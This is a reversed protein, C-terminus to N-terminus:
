SLFGESKLHNETIVDKCANFVFRISSTDTACTVHHYIEDHVANRALFKGLFYEIGAEYNNPKGSYDSFEPIDALNIKKIKQAYLDSKNLFIIIAAKEFAADNSTRDFLDIADIMRNTCQDEWLVQDFESLAAMFIVGHVNDFCHIWKRRENKQGGVDFFQFIKNDIIFREEKIGTTRIRCNMIDNTSPKYDVDAIEDIRNMFTSMTEIIQFTSRQEWVNQIADSTWLSKISTSYTTDTLDPFVRYSSDFDCENDYEAFLLQYEPTKIINNSPDLERVMRCLMETTEIINQHIFRKFLLKEDESYEAGYLLRMQKLVTSKGSEGAGLLLLKMGKEAQEMDKFLLDDIRKSENRADSTGGDKLGKSSCAQGM